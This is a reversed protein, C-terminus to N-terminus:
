LPVGLAPKLTFDTADLDKKLEELKQQQERLAELMELRAEPTVVRKLEVDLEDIQKRCAEIEELKKLREELIAIHGGARMQTLLDTVFNHLPKYFISVDRTLWFREDLGQQDPELLIAWSGLRLNREKWIRHLIVRMNWDRLSYGLFLFISTRLKKVVNIPVLGPLDSRTLFEIYDDETIVFSDMRDDTQALPTSRDVAGHIKLIVNRWEPNVAIYTQPKRILRPEVKPPWQRWFEEPDAAYISEEPAYAWHWCRGRYKGEAAYYVLDFPQRAAHFSRELVDDYNTTVILQQRPPQGQKKLLSPLVALFKHLLTPPYNVDFLERLAMYLAGVGGGFLVAYQAVRALDEDRSGGFNDVLYGALEGGNPLYRGREFATKPPRDCLNAGAGLFPVIQGSNFARIVAQYSLGTKKEPLIPQPESMM